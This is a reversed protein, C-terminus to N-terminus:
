EIRHLRLALNSFFKEMTPLSCTIIEATSSRWHQSETVLSSRSHYGLDYWGEAGSKFQRREDVVVGKPDQEWSGALIPSVEILVLIGLGSTSMM